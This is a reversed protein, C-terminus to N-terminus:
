NSLLLKSIKGAISMNVSGAHNTKLINMLTGMDKLSSFNQDKIITEIINVTELESLQKPLFHSILDIELQEKAILDDRSAVQFSEISDKRQKILSQLLTLIQQDDIKGSTDKTRNEIDKNKIASKILRIANTEDTKKSKIANKYKEEIKIRLSM